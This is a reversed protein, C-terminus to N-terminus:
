HSRLFELLSDAPLPRSILYGQLEDCKLLALFKAQEEEEVGEAIVKLDLAHAMAIMTSVITMSVPSTTMTGVFSQDIKLADVPLRALYSLSSYGTGFDDIAIALGMQRIATLRAINQEIDTVIMSETIELDIGPATCHSAAIANRVSEVFDKQKLQLASVNVAIRPPEIGAARWRQADALAQRIAWSGVQLILRTEELLPIFAGPPVLGSEPDNWRILAEVGTVKRTVGSVKPQYYLVFENRDLATRLKNELSLGQSIRANMEPQYFLYHDGSQKAERLAVGANRILTDADDGDDPSIAIGASMSVMIEHEGVVLPKELAQIITRDLDNVVDIPPRTDSLLGLFHDVPIRALNSPEPWVVQLRQALARLLHDGVAQGFTHNINRFRNVNYLVVSVHEGPNRRAAELARALRQNFLVRNPLGTLADYCALYALLDQKGIYSLSFSVDGALERLLEIEEDTFFDAESAYLVIVGVSVAEVVLPLVIMSHYGRSLAEEMRDSAIDHVTLDSIVFLEKQEIVRVVPGLNRSSEGSLSVPQSGTEDDIGAWAVPVVEQRASNVEGIWAMGFKGEEVAIRCAERFLEQRDHIRVIASNIGSLVAHVRTLRLIRQQQQARQFFQGIQDGLADLLNLMGLDAQRLERCFFEAVGVIKGSRRGIPIATGSQLGAAAAQSKRHFTPDDMLDSVWVMGGGTLVRGPLCADDAPLTLHRTTAVFSMCEEEPQCWVDICHVLRGDESCRWLAGAAFGFDRCISALMQQSAEEFSGAEALIRAVAYQAALRGQAQEREIIEKELEASHKEIKRYLSGNEYIRGTQAAIIGLTREDDESFADTGLKDTLCIWGYVSTLSIVPAAVLSRVPPYGAPLGLTATEGEALAIRVCKREAVVAGLLGEDLRFEGLDALMEAALGSTSVFALEQDETNRVAISAYRAGLLLCASKCVEDLLRAADRQSGLQLNLEILAELKKNSAQLEVVKESLKDTMLRLHQHEFSPLPPPPVMGVQADARTTSALVREIVAIIQEPEYPKTLIDTVGCAQALQQAELELYYATFFIVPIHGIQPDARLHRVFEYGDMVPMLIDCIVLDPNENRVLELAEAGNSAEVSQHGFAHLLTVLLERNVALDDIVAIKAM